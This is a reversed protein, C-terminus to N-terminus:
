KNAVFFLIFVKCIIIYKVNLDQFLKLFYYYYCEQQKWLNISNRETGIASKERRKKLIFFIINMSLVLFIGISSINLFYLNIFNNM